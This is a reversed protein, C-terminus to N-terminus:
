TANTTTQNSREKLQKVHSRLFINNIEKPDKNRLDYKKRLTDNRMMIETEETKTMVKFKPQQKQVQMKSKPVTTRKHIPKESTEEQQLEPMTEDKDPESYTDQYTEQSEDIYDGM